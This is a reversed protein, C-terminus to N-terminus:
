RIGHLVLWAARQMGHHCRASRIIASHTGRNSL